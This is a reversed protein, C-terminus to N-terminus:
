AKSIFADFMERHEAAFQVAKRLGDSLNGGGAVKALEIYEDPLKLAVVKAPFGKRGAGPRAGGRKNEATM